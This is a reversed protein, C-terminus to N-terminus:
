KKTKGKTTKTKAPVEEVQAPVEAAAAAEHKIAGVSDLFKIMRDYLGGIVTLEEAKFAGRNSAVQIVQLTLTLDQVTLGPAQTATEQTNTTANEAMPDEM